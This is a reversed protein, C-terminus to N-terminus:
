GAPETQLARFEELKDSTEVVLEGDYHLTPALMKFTIDDVAAKKEENAIMVKTLFELIRRPLRRFFSPGMQAGLMSTVLAAAIKDQKIEERYRKLWDHSVSGNLCLPPDFVAAKRIASLRLAAHLAILRISTGDNSTIYGITGHDLITTMRRISM